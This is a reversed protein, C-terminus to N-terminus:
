SKNEGPEEIEIEAIHLESGSLVKTEISGCQSCVAFGGESVTTAHCVTCQVRFPITEIELRACRFPTDSTIAQFSFELSDPVVGSLAGIKLRVTIVRDWDSFPVYQQVMEVISQAVSLEHM